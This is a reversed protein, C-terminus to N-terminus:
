MLDKGRNSHLSVTIFVFLQKCIPQWFRVKPVIQFSRLIAYNKLEFTKSRKM